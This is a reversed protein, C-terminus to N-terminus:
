TSGLFLRYGRKDLYSLINIVVYSEPSPSVKTAFASAVIGTSAIMLGGFQISKMYRPFATFLRGRRGVM